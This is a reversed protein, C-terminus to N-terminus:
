GTVEEPLFAMAADELSLSTVDRVQAGSLAIRETLERADGVLTLHTERGTSSVRAGAPQLERPAEWGEPTELQYRRVTRRLEDRSLQAVLKGERLVGIHDALSEVEQLHHTSLMITTPTDALHEALLRLASRRVVPDFGDTPEDLLLLPPRHAMALVLQLRRAEGKSLTRTKREPQIALATCLREAYAADWTPHYAAVHRLLRACTMWGYGHDHREPVYGIQARAQGGQAGTDLGFVSASGASPREMNMLIRFTTSKGAGNAGVLVYVSGEPVRLDVSHLAMRKGYRRSLAHSSVAFDGAGRAHTSGSM